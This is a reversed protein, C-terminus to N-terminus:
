ALKTRFLFKITRCNDRKGSTEQRRHTQIITKIVASRKRKSSFWPTEAKQRVVPTTQSRTDFVAVFVNSLAGLLGLSLLSSSYSSSSQLTKTYEMSSSLFDEELLATRSSEMTLKMAIMWIMRPQIIKTQLTECSFIQKCHTGRNNDGGNKTSRSLKQCNPLNWLSNFWAYHYILTWDM